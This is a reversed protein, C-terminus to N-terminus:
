RGGTARGAYRGDTPPERPDAHIGSVEGIFGTGCQEMVSAGFPGARRFDLRVVLFEEGDAPFHVAVGEREVQEPAEESAPISARMRDPPIVAKMPGFPAPLALVAASVAQMRRNELNIGALRQGGRRSPRALTEVLGADLFSLHAAQVVALFRGLIAGLSKAPEGELTIPESEEFLMTLWYKQHEIPLEEQPPMMPLLNPIEHGQMEPM